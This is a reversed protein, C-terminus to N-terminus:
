KLGDVAQLAAEDPEAQQQLINVTAKELVIGLKTVIDAPPYPHLTQAISELGRATEQDKWFKLASPRPPLYGSAESWRTLFSSDTLFEALRVSAPHHAPDPSTLVWMWGSGTTYPSGNSIPAMTLASEDSTEALYRSVWTLVQDARGEQFANWSQEDTKLGTLWYPLSGKLNADQLFGFVEKLIDMDLFAQGQDDSVQGGLAQYVALTYRAEPDAAPFILPTQSEQLATTTVAPQEVVMPRYVQLIADAAFPIGYNKNQYRAMEHAFNYWDPDDLTNSLNDFPYLLGQQVVTEIQDHPLIVLDPLALQAAKNATSLSELLGGPGNLNKVRVSIEVGAMRNSFEKLRAKLLNAAPTGINPDFQPPVWIQLKV